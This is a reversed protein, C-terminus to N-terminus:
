SYLQKFRQKMAKVKNPEQMVSVEGMFSSVADKEIGWGANIAKTAMRVANCKDPSNFECGCCTTAQPTRTCGLIALQEIKRQKNM